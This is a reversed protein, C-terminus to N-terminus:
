ATPRPPHKWVLDRLRECYYRFADWGVEPPVEHDIGPMYRGRELMFPTKELEEDVGTRGKALASKDIGGMIGLTPFQERVTRIDLGFQTEWPFTIDVGGAMWLPVLQRMDGDSDVMVLKCGLGKIASTLRQYRPLLFERFIAPSVLPGNRYCMDEWVFFYDFPADAYVRAYFDIWHDCMTDLMERVLGPDDYLMLSFGETGLLERMGGYFGIPLDGAYVPLDTTKAQACTEQWDAPLRGPTDPRFRDKLREWGERDKVPPDEQLPMRGVNKYGRKLAGWRTREVVYEGTEGIVEEEFEPWLYARVPLMFGRQSEFGFMQVIRLRADHVTTPREPDYGLDFGEDAWRMMAQRNPAMTLYFPARDVPQGKFLRLFREKQTLEM